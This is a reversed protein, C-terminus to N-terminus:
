NIKFGQSSMKVLDDTSYRMFLNNLSNNYALNNFPKRKLENVANSIRETFKESLSVLRMSELRGSATDFLMITVGLGKGEETCIESLGPSLYPTYPADMWNLSGFKVLFMMVESFEVLRMEFRKEAKFNEVEDQTPKDFYVILKAGTDSIDFYCGESHRIAETYIKGVEYTKFM